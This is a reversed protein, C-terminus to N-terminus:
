DNLYMDDEFDEVNPQKAPIQDKYYETDFNTAAFKLNYYAHNSIAFNKLGNPLSKVYDTTLALVQLTVGQKEEEFM